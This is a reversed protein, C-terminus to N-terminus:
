LGVSVVQELSTFVERDDYKKEKREGEWTQM